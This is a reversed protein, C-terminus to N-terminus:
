RSSLNGSIDSLADSADIVTEERGALDGLSVM